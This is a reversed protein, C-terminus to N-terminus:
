DGSEETIEGTSINISVQGYEEELTKNFEQLDTQLQVSQHLFDHKQMEIHGLEAKANNIKGVLDQLEQLQEDKLKM